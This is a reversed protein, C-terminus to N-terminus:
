LIQVLRLKDAEEKPCRIQSQRNLVPATSSTGYSGIFDSLIEEKIRKLAETYDKETRIPRIMTDRERESRLALGKLGKTLAASYLKGSPSSQIVM